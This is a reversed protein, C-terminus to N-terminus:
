VTRYSGNIPGLCTNSNSISKSMSRTNHPTPYWLIHVQTRLYVFVASIGRSNRPYCAPPFHSWLFQTPTRFIIYSSFIKSVSFVFSSAPSDSLTVGSKTSAKRRVAWPQCTFFARLQVLCPFASFLTSILLILHRLIIGSECFYPLSNFSSTIQGQYPRTRSFLFQLSVSESQDFVPLIRFSLLHM